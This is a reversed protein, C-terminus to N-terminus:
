AEEDLLDGEAPMSSALTSKPALTQIVVAAGILAAALPLAFGTIVQAVFAFVYIAFEGNSGVFETFSYVIEAGLAIFLSGIGALGIAWWTCRKAVPHM